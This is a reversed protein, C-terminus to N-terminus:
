KVLLMKKTATFENGIKVTYFYLGSTLNGADFTISHRGKAYQAGNILTAVVQGTANYVTLTVPNNDVLDFAIKTTPNFPNPYNQHLAYETVLANEFSPTVSATYVSIEDGNTNVARLDYAYTHGNEVGNDVYEYSAGSPTNAAEKTAIHVNDRYIAFGSLANESLTRWSIKVSNDLPLVAVEGMEVNEIFDVFVCACGDTAGTLPVVTACYYIQGNIMQLVFALPGFNWGAAPVCESDCPTNTPSCGPLVAGHPVRNTNPLPGVCVTHIQPACLVVCDDFMVPGNAPYQPHFYTYLDPICLHFIEEWCTDKMCCTWNSPGGLDADIPPSESASCTIVRSLYRISHICHTVISDSGEIRSTVKEPATYDIKLYFYPPTPACGAAVFYLDNAFRGPQGIVDGMHMMSFGFSCPPYYTDCLPPDDCLQPPTDQPDPEACTGFGNSNVDWMIYIPTGVPLPNGVGDCTDRMVWTDNYWNIGQAFGLGALALVAVAVFLLKVKM